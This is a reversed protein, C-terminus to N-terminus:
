AIKRVGNWGFPPSFSLNEMFEMLQMAPGDRPRKKLYEKLQSRAIKWEGNVYSKFGNAFLRGANRSVKTM